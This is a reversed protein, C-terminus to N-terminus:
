PKGCRRETQREIEQFEQEQRCALLDFGNRFLPIAFGYLVLQKYSCLHLSLLPLVSHAVHRHIIRVHEHEHVHVHLEVYSMCVSVYM